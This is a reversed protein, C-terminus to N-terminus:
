LIYNKCKDSNNEVCYHIVFSLYNNFITNHYHYRKNHIWRSFNEKIICQFTFLNDRRITDRIYEEYRHIHKRLLSHFLIYNSKNTFVFVYKPIYEKIIDIIENPLINIQQILTLCM